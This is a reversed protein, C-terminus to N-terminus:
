TCQQVGDKSEEKEIQQSRLLSAQYLESVDRFVDKLVYFKADLPLPSENFAEALLRRFEEM